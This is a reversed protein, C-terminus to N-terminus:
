TKKHECTEPHTGFSRSAKGGNDIYTVLFLKFCLCRQRKFQSVSIIGVLVSSTQIPKTLDLLQFITNGLWGTGFLFEPVPILIPVNGVRGM